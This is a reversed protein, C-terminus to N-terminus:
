VNQGAVAAAPENQLGLKDVKGSGIGRWIRGIWGMWVGFGAGASHSVLVLVILTESAKSSVM